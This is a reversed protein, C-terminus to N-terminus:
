RAGGELADCTGVFPVGRENFAYTILGVFVEEGYPPNQGPLAGTGNYLIWDDGLVGPQPNPRQWSVTLTRDPNGVIRIDARGDPVINGGADNVRSDGDVTNKGEVTFHTSGRHGVVVHSSHRVDLDTVHVQIGAFLFPNGEPPPATLADDVTGIGINRAIVEFPFRVQKADLRGQDGNFHLTINDTNDVLLARYRGDVRAVEPLADPNNTTYGILPGDGEFDDSLVGVMPDGVDADSVDSADAVDPVDAVDPADSADTTDPVDAVDAVDADTADPVDGTDMAVDAPDGTDQPVDEARVDDPSADGTDALGPVDMEDGTDEPGTDMPDEGVERAADPAGTDEGGGADAPDEVGPPVANPLEEDFACSSTIGLMGIWLLFTGTKRKFM